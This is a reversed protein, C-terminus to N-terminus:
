RSWWSDKFYPLMIINAGNEIAQDIEEKSSDTNIQLM